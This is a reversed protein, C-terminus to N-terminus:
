CYTSVLSPCIVGFHQSRIQELPPCCRKRRRHRKNGTQFQKPIVSAKRPHTVGASQNSANDPPASRISRERSECCTPFQSPFIFHHGEVCDRQRINSFFGVAEALNVDRRMYEPTRLCLAGQLVETDPMIENGTLHNRGVGREFLCNCIHVM